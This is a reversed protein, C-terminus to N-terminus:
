AGALYAMRDGTAILVNPRFEKVVRNVAGWRAVAERLLGLGSRIRHVAFPLASNFARWEPESVYDQPSIVTMNCGLRQLHLSVQFAHTGIGGPGPPFESSIILIRM